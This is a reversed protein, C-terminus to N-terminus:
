AIDTSEESQGTGHGLMGLLASVKHVLGSASLHRGDQVWRRFASVIGGAVFDPILSGADPGAASVVRDHVLREIRAVLDDKVRTHLLAGVTSARDEALEAISEAAHAYGEEDAAAEAEDLVDAIAEIAEEEMEDIASSVSGYHALFTKKSILAREAVDRATIDGADDSSLLELLATRIARRTKIVRRDEGRREKGM